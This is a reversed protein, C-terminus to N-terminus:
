RQKQKQALLKVTQEVRSARTEPKKAAAIWALYSNRYFASLGELFERASPNDALANELDEPLDSAAAAGQPEIIVTVADGPSIAAESQLDKNVPMFHIGGRSGLSGSFAVGNITGKVFHRPKKGWKDSPVFPMTIFVRGREGTEIKTKFKERSM